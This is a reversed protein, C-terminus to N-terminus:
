GVGRKNHCRNCASENFLPGLGSEIGHVREFAARGLEFREQEAPALGGLPEGPLPERSGAASAVVAASSVIGILGVGFVAARFLVAVSFKASSAAPRPTM